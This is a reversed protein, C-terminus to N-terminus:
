IIYIHSMCSITDRLEIVARAERFPDKGARAAVEASRYVSSIQRLRPEDM